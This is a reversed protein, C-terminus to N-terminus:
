YYYRKYESTKVLLAEDGKNNWVNVDLGWFYVWTTSGAKNKFNHNEGISTYVVIYDGKAVNQSPFIFSHRLKNSSHGKEDYTADFIIYPWLNCDEEVQLIVYEQDNEKVIKKVVLEM